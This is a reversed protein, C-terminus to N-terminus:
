IILLCLCRNLYKESEQIEKRKTNKLFDLEEILAQKKEETIYNKEEM